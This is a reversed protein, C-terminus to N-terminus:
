SHSRELAPQHYRPAPKPELTGSACMIDRCLTAYQLLDIIGLELQLQLPQLLEMLGATGRSSEM